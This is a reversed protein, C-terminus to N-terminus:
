QPKPMTAAQMADIFRILAAQRQQVDLRMLKVADSTLGALEPYRDAEELLYTLWLGYKEELVITQEAAILSQLHNLDPQLWPLIKRGDPLEWYDVDRDYGLAMEVDSCDESGALHKMKWGCAEFIKRHRSDIKSTSM